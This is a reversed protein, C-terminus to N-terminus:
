LLLEGAEQRDEGRAAGEEEDEVVNRRLEEGHVLIGPRVVDQLARVEQHADATLVRIPRTGVRRQRHGQRIGAVDVVVTLKDEGLAHLKGFFTGSSRPFYISCCDSRRDDCGNRVRREVTRDAVLHLDEARRGASTQRHQQLARRSAPFCAEHLRHGVLQTALQDGDRAVLVHRRRIQHASEQELATLRDPHVPRQGAGHALAGDEIQVLHHLRALVGGHDDMREGIVATLERDIPEARCQM